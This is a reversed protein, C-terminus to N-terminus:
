WGGEWPRHKGIGPRRHYHPLQAFPNPSDWDGTPNIRLDPTLSGQPTFTMEGGKWGIKPCKSIANMGAGALEGMGDLAGAVALANMSEDSIGDHTQGDPGLQFDSPVTANYADISAQQAAADDNAQQNALSQYLGPGYFSGGGGAPNSNWAGSLGPLTSSIPNGELGLPDIRNVPNNQVYGYLNLGGQEEIPDRNLWEHRGSVTKYSCVRSGPTFM